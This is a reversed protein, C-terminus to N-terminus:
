ASPPARSRFGKSCPEPSSDPLAAPVAAVVDDSITLSAPIVKDQAQGLIRCIFCESSDHQKRLPPSHEPEQSEYHSHGCSVHLTTTSVSAIDARCLEDCGGVQWLHLPETGVALFVYSVLVTPTSYRRAARM